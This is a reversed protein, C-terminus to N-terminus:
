QVKFGDMTGNKIVYFLANFSIELQKDFEQKSLWQQLTGNEGIFDYYDAGRNFYQTIMGHLNTPLRILNDPAKLYFGNEAFNALNGWGRAVIHHMQELEGEALEWCDEGRTAFEELKNLCVVGQIFYRVRRLISISADSDCGEVTDEGGMAAETDPLTGTAALGLPDIRNTPNNLCYLYKHLSLQEEPSGAVSDRGTFRMLQPDYQRARLYYQGIESDFYQGAFMFPNTVIGSSTFEIMQGFPGYTYHYVPEGWCNLVERVSDLRDHLYFYRNATYNGDHQALVEGNAWIYTKALSSTCPDIELLM